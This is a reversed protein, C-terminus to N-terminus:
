IAPLEEYLIEAIQLKNKIWNIEKIFTKVIELGVKVKPLDQFIRDVRVIIKKVEVIHEIIEKNLKEFIDKDDSNYQIKFEKDNIEIKLFNDDKNILFKVIM